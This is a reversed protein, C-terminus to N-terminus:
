SLRRLRVSFRLLQSSPSVVADDMSMWPLQFPDTVLAAHMIQALQFGTKMFEFM